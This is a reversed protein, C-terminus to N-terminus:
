NYDSHPLESKADSRRISNYPLVRRLEEVTTKGKMIKDIAALRFSDFEIENLYAQMKSMQNERILQKVIPPEVNLLEILAERGLYGTNLCKSCGKGKQWKESQAEERELSLYHLDTDEPQYPQKCHPCINRVLRQAVIGLLADSILSPDLGLGKLRPIASVADNTHLTTFVLHGTLAAEVATEATEKDRIEGVMIIDPDQRLIARLGVAFTMGAPKNVQGQSIGPLTYEVPDEITIAKKSEDAVRQLSTYLTSTKGSGTPGTIVILGWPQALWGNYIERAKETFGLDEITSFPNKQPLLRVVATEGNVVPYTSVRVDLRIETDKTTEYELKLRGDQPIRREAINMNTKAKLAGIIKSDLGVDPKIIDQLIGDIRYRVKLSAGTPEFHIDSARRYIAAAIIFELREIQDKKELLYMKAFSRIDNQAEKGEFLRIRKFPNVVTIDIQLKFSCERYSKETILIIKIPNESSQGIFKTTYRCLQSIKEPPLPKPSGLYYCDQWYLLPIVPPFDYHKPFRKQFRKNVGTDFLSLNVNGQKDVLLRLAEECTIKHSILQQWVSNKM